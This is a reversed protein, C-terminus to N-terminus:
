SSFILSKALNYEEPTNINLFSIEGKLEPIDLNHIPYENCIANIPSDLALDFYKESKMKENLAKSFDAGIKLIPVYIRESNVENGIEKIIGENVLVRKKKEGQLAKRTSLVSDFDSHVVKELLEKTFFSDGDLCVFEDGNSAQLGLWFSYCHNLEVNKDNIIIKGKGSIKFVKQRNEESWTEGEEGIVVLIDEKSIGCSTLIDIQRELLTKEGIEILCKPVLSINGLRKGIGAALIIAKM